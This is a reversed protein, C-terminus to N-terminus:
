IEDGDEFADHPYEAGAAPHIAVPVDHELALRGHGSVHDAHTHTEITRVIRVIRREAEDLYQEIAFAPISSSPRARTRTASSTHRAAM